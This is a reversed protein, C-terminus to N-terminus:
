FNRTRALVSDYKSVPGNRDPLFIHWKGGWIMFSCAINIVCIKSNGYGIDPTVYYSLDLAYLWGRVGTIYNWSRRTRAWSVSACAQLRTIDRRHVVHCLKQIAEKDNEQLNASQLWQNLWYGKVTCDTVDHLSLGKGCYTSIYKYMGYNQSKSVLYYVCCNIRLHNFINSYKLVFIWTSCKLM